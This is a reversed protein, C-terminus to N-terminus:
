KSIPTPNTDATASSQQPSHSAKHSTHKAKSTKVVRRAGLYHNRYYDESLSNYQVKGGGSSAHIFKGNGVYIVVHHVRNNGRSSFFLLDGRKLDSKSVPQGVHSQERSSRPLHIGQKGYVQWTFGSCDTGSRSSSGYSYPTGRMAVATKIIPDAKADGDLSVAVENGRGHHRRHGRAVYTESVSHHRRRRSEAPAHSPNLFDGRVWGETGRPFRLKYWAGDRDLVVVRTGTDVTTIKRAHAGAERRISVADSNVVAYRSRIRNVKTKTKRGSSAVRTEGSSDHGPVTIHRGARLRNWDVGPNLEHILRVPVGLHHAIVWDNDDESVVFQRTSSHHAAPKSKHEVHAVVSKETSLTSGPILLVHGNRLADWDQVDPNALHLKHLSTNFKRAITWDCDGNRVKYHAQAFVTASPVVLTQGNVLHANKPLGNAKLIAEARANFIGAIGAITDGSQVTHIQQQALATGSLLLSLGLTLNKIQLSGGKRRYVRREAWGM